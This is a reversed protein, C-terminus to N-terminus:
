GGTSETQLLSMQYRLPTNAFFDKFKASSIDTDYEASLKLM